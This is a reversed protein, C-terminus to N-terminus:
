MTCLDENIKCSTYILSWQLWWSLSQNEYTAMKQAGLCATNELRHPARKSQGCDQVRKEHTFRNFVHKYLFISSCFFSFFDISISFRSQEYRTPSEKKNGPAWSPPPSSPPCIGTDQLQLVTEIKGGRLHVNTSTCSFDQPHQQSFGGQLCFCKSMSYPVPVSGLGSLPGVDYCSVTKFSIRSRCSYRMFLGPIKMQKSSANKSISRQSFCMTETVLTHECDHLFGGVFVQFLTTKYLKHEILHCLFGQCGMKEHTFIVTQKWQKSFNVGM